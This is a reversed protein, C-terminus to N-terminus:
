YRVGKMGCGEDWVVRKCSKRFFYASNLHSGHCLLMMSLGLSAMVLALVLSMRTCHPRPSVTARDIAAMTAKPELEAAVPWM